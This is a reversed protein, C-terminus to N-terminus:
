SKPKEISAVKDDRVLVQFAGNKGSYTLARGDEDTIELAPPGFRRVMEGYALGAQIGSPDEWNPAPSKSTSRSRTKAATSSYRITEVATVGNSKADSDQGAKVIKDLSAALGSVADGIGRAPATTTAARAAGLGAEVTAQGAATGSTIIGLSFVISFCAISRAM